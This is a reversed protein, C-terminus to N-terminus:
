IPSKDRAVVRLEGEPPEAIQEVAKQLHSDSLHAYRVTMVISGHGLLEQITRLDVGAMCLRSAFTHQLDHWRFNRVGAIQLAARFWGNMPACVHDSSGRQKRLLAVAAIASSNLPISRAKGSKTRSLSILGRGLDLDRWRLGFQEGRRMGTHLALDLEPERAPYLERIADRISREEAESLFRIRKNNEPRLPVLRAPNSTAKGNRIALAFVASIV